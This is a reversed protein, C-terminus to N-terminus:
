NTKKLLGFASSFSEQYKQLKAADSTCTTDALSLGYKTGEVTITKALMGSDNTTPDALISAFTGQDNTCKSGILDENRFEVYRTGNQARLVEYEFGGVGKVYSVTINMPAIDVTAVTSPDPAPEEAANSSKTETNSPSEDKSHEEDPTTTTGESSSTSNSTDTIYPDQKGPGMSKILAVAGIAVLLVVLVSITTVLARKGKKHM